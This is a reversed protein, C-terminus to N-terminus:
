TETDYFTHKGIGISISVDQESQLYFTLNLYCYFEVGTLLLKYMFMVQRPFKGMGTWTISFGRDPRNRDSRFYLWMQNGTVITDPPIGYGNFTGLKRSLDVNVGEGYYLYDYKLELAIDNFHFNISSARTFQLDIVYSCEANDYYDSPYNPSILTGTM